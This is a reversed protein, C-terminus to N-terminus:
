NKNNKFHCCIYHDISFKGAGFVLIIGLLMAWYYHQINQDYTFQIVATMALLPLVTLRSAFGIILLVPCLLEFTTASVASLYPSLIPVKYEETFLILTSDFNQIKTLGSLFFIRAIWLRVLLLMFPQLYKTIKVYLGYINTCCSIM